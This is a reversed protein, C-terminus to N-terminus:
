ESGEEQSEENSPIIATSEVDLGSPDEGADVVEM